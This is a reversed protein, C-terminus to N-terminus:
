CEHNQVNVAVCYIEGELVHLPVVTFNKDEESSMFLLINCRKGWTDKVAQAKTQLNKPQIMVWCLIRINGAIQKAVRDGEKHYLSEADNFGIAGDKPSVIGVNRPDKTQKRYIRIRYLNTESYLQCFLIGLSFGVCLSLYFEKM